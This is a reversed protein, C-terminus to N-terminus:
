KVGINDQRLGSVLTVKSVDLAVMGAKEEVFGNNRGKLM